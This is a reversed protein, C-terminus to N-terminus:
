ADHQKDKGASFLRGLGWIIGALCLWEIVFVGFWFLKSEFLDTEPTAPLLLELFSIGVLHPILLFIKPDCMGIHVSGEMAIIPIFLVFEVVFAILLPKPIKPM